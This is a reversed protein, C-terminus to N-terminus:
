TFEAGTLQLGVLDINTSNLDTNAAIELLQAQTLAGGSGQLLSVFANLSVSDPPSGVVNTFVTTVFDTNSQGMLQAVLECVQLMSMNGDFFQLGIITGAPTATSGRL